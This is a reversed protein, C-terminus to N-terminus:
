TAHEKVTTLHTELRRLTEMLPENVVLGTGTGASADLVFRGM